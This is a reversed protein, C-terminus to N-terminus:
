DSAPVEGPDRVQELPDFVLLACRDVPRGDVERVLDGGVPQYPDEAWPTM